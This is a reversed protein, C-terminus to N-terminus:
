DRKQRITGISRISGTNPHFEIEANQIPLSAIVGFQNILMRSSARLTNGTRIVVQASEPIRYVFGFTPVHPTLAQGTFQSLGVTTKQSETSITVALADRRPETLVGDRESFYFLTYAENPSGASPIFTYRFQMQQVSTLGRFLELYAEEQKGLETYMYELAEKTYAIEAYGTIVAFRKDRIRLIHEAVERARAESSKEVMSRRLTQRTVMLTDIQVRELITDIREQLNFDIFHNFTEIDGTAGIQRTEGASSLHQTPNVPRNLSQILGAENLSLYFPNQALFNEPFSVFYFHDPDPESFSNIKIESIRYSTANQRIVNQLGLFQRAFNVFPGPIQQIREVTVDVSIVTRPLAYFTGQPNETLITDNLPYVRVHQQQVKCASLSLGVLLLFFFVKNMRIFKQTFTPNPWCLQTRFVIGSSYMGAETENPFLFNVTEFTAFNGFHM